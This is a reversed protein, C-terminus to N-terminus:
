NKMTQFHQFISIKRQTLVRKFICLRSIFVFRNIWRYTVVLIHYSRLLLFLILFTLELFSNVLSGINKAWIFALFLEYFNLFLILCIRYFRKYWYFLVVLLTELLNILDNYYHFFIHNHYSNGFSKIKIRISSFINIFIQLMFSFKQYFALIKLQAYVLFIDNFLWQWFILMSVINKFVYFLLVLLCSTM